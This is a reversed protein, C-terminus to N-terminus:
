YRYYTNSHCPMSEKRKRNEKHEESALHTNMETHLIQKECWGCLTTDFEYARQYYEKETHKTTETKKRMSNVKKM